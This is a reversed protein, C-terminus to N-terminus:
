KRLPSVLYPHLHRPRRIYPHIVSQDRLLPNRLQRRIPSSRSLFMLFQFITRKTLSIFLVFTAAKLICVKDQPSSRALEALTMAKAGHPREEPTREQSLRMAAAIKSEHPSHYEHHRILQDDPSESFKGCFM